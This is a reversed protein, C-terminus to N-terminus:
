NLSFSEIWAIMSEEYEASNEMPCCAKVSYVANSGKFLAEMQLTADTLDPASPYTTIKYYYGNNVKIPVLSEGNIKINQIYEKLKLSKLQDSSVAKKAVSFVIDDYTYCALQVSGTSTSYLKSSSEMASPLKASFEDHSIYEWQSQDTVDVNKGSVVNFVIVACAAISLLIAVAALLKKM